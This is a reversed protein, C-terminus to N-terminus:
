CSKELKVMNILRDVKDGIGCVLLLLLRDEPKLKNVDNLLDKIKQDTGSLNENLQPDTFGLDIVKNM